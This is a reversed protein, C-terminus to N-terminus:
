DDFFPMPDDIDGWSAVQQANEAASSSSALLADIKGDYLGFVGGVCLLYLSCIM